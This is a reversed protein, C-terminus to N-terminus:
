KIDNCSAPTQKGSKIKNSVFMIVGLIVFLFISGFLLAFDEIQLIIYLFSYLILMIVALIFTALKQKILSYFYITIMSITVFSAALYAWGFGIQESLSLLLSYFLILAIGVLLYQFFHISKKTFIEVFFFVIFTLAIFMLAYKASRMNQQYHDVTEILNVGFSNDGLDTINDDSWMEPIERNFSLINWSANFQEKSVTSEPSFRGIFSPSKWQGDLTVATHQGIPIFSIASSGNLQMACNFHLSDTLNIDKLNVILTKGLINASHFYSGQSSYEVADEVAINESVSFLKVVGVTTEFTKDGIKFNPNQTVGRLDTIGIAIQAKNFHIESNDIKLNALESFNGEFHIDSKYLIAKYIGYHREEPTLTANIKLDKPTIYLTHEEYYLKKDKDLKGTTYPVLLLPACLTQSRSWKDNIRQVTERSRDKREKILDQIMVGPILLILILLAITIGKFTLSQTFKGKSVEMNIKQKFYHIYILRAVFFLGLGIALVIMLFIIVFMEM